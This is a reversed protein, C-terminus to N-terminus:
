LHLRRVTVWHRSCPRWLPSNLLRCPIQLVPWWLVKYFHDGNNLVFLESLLVCLWTCKDKSHVYRWIKIGTYVALHCVSQVQLHQPQLTLHSIWLMDDYGGCTMVQGVLVPPLSYSVRTANPCHCSSYVWCPLGATTFLVVKLPITNLANNCPLRETNPSHYTPLLSSCFTKWTQTAPTALALTCLQLNM